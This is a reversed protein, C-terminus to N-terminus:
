RLIPSPRPRGTARAGAAERAVCPQFM